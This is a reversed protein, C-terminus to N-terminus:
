CMYQLKGSGRMTRAALRIAVFAFGKVVNLAHKLNLCGQQCGASVLVLVLSCMGISSYFYWYQLALVLVPTCTSSYWYQLVLVLVPYCTGISSHLYQLPFLPSLRLLRTGTAAGAKVVVGVSEFGATFPLQKTAEATSGFYKGSTFNIDSANAGTYVRRILVEDRAVSSPMPLSVLAAADLFVTSLQQVQWARFTQPLDTSAYALMARSPPQQSQTASGQRTAEAVPFVPAWEFRKGNQM